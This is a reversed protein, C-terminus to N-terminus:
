QRPPPGPGPGPGNRHLAGIVIKEFKKRQSENCIKRVERFHNFVQADREQENQGIEALISDIATQPVDEQFMLKFLGDKLEKKERGLARMKADHPQFLLDFQAMQNEDFNLEKTIFVDPGGRKNRPLPKKFQTAVFYGNFGILLIIIIYLLTNKKM